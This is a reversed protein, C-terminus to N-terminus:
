TMTRKPSPTAERLGHALFSMLEVTARWWRGFVRGRGDSRHIALIDPADKPIESQAYRAFITRSGASRRPLRVLSQRSGMPTAASRSRTRTADEFGESELACMIAERVTQQCTENYRYTTRIESVSQAM